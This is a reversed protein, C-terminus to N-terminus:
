REPRRIRMRARLVSSEAHATTGVATRRDAAAGIRIAALLDWDWAREPGRQNVLSVETVRLQREPLKTGLADVIPALPQRDTSYAITIHPTWPLSSAPRGPAGVVAETAERAAELVPELAESPRATLMIAEPHYWVKAVTVTIPPVDALLRTAVDAMQRVRKTDIQGAAGAVLVTM